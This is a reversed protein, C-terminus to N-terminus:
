GPPRVWEFEAAGPGAAPLPAVPFDRAPPPLPGPPRPGTLVPLVRAPSERVPTDPSAPGAPWPVAAPPQVTVPLPAAAQVPPPSIAPAAPAPSPRTQSGTAQRILDRDRRAQELLEPSLPPSLKAPTWVVVVSLNDLFRDQRNKAQLVQADEESIVLDEGQTGLARVVLPRAGVRDLGRAQDLNYAYSATGQTSISDADLNRRAAASLYIQNGQADLLRMGMSPQFSLGQADVIVGTVEPQAPTQAVIPPAASEPLVQASGLDAPVLWLGGVGVVLYCLRNVARYPQSLCRM